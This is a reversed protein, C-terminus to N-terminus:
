VLPSVMTGKLGMEKRNDRGRQRINKKSPAAHQTTALIFFNKWTCRTYPTAPQFRCYTCDYEIPHM